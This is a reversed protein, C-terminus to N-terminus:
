QAADVAEGAARENAIRELREAARQGGSRLYRKILFPGIVPPIWFDPEMEMEHRIDTGGNRDSLIWRTEGSRVDSKDPVVVTVIREPRQLELTEVREITRCFFLLCDHLRTYILGSGDENREIFYSEEFVSSVREFEDYDALVHFVEDRPADVSIDSRVIYRGQEKRVEVDTVM